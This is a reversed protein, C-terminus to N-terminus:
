VLVFFVKLWCVVTSALLFRGEVTLYRVLLRSCALFKLASFVLYGYENKQVSFNKEVQKLFSVFNSNIEM